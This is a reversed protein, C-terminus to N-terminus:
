SLPNAEIDLAKWTAKEQIEKIIESNVPHYTGAAALGIITGVVVLKYMNLTDLLLIIFYSGEAEEYVL